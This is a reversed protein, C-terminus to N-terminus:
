KQQGGSAAMAAAAAAEEEMREKKAKRGQSTDEYKPIDMDGRFWKMQRETYLMEAASWSVTRFRRQKWFELTGGMNGFAPGSIQADLPEPPFPVTEDGEVYRRVAKLRETVQPNLLADRVREAAEYATEKGVLDVLDLRGMIARSVAILTEM